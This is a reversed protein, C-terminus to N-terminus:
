CFFLKIHRSVNKKWIGLLNSDGVKAKMKIFSCATTYYECVKSTRGIYRKIYTITHVREIHINIYMYNNIYWLFFNLPSNSWSFHVFILFINMWQDNIMAKNSVQNLDTRCIPCYLHDCLVRMRTSCRYCIPHDCHGIAFIDVTEHCVPCVDHDIQNQIETQDM